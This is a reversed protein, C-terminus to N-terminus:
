TESKRSFLIWRVMTDRTNVMAGYYINLIYQNSLLYIFSSFQFPTKISFIPALHEQHLSWSLYLGQPLLSDLTNSVSVLPWLLLLMPTPLHFLFAPHTQSPLCPYTM